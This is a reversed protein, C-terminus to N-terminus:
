VEEPEVELALLSLQRRWESYGTYSGARFGFCRGGNGKVYCGAKLGDRRKRLSGVFHHTDDCNEENRCTVFTARSIAEVDLGM